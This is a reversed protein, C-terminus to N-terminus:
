LFDYAYLQSSAKSGFFRWNCFSVWCSHSSCNSSSCSSLSPSSTTCKFLKPNSESSSIVTSIGYNNHLFTQGARVQRSHFYANYTLCYYCKQLPFFLLLWGRILAVGIQVKVFYIGCHKNLYICYKVELRMNNRAM